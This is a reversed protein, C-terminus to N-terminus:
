QIKEKIKASFASPKDNFMQKTKHWVINFLESNRYHNIDEEKEWISFTYLINKQQEDQWLELYTCGPFNRIKNKHQNFWTLFEDIKEPDFSMRVIRQIM